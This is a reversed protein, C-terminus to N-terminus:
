LILFSYCSGMELEGNVLCIRHSALGIVRRILLSTGSAISRTRLLFTPLIVRWTFLVQVLGVVAIGLM